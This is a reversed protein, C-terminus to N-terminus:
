LGVLGEADTMLSAPCDACAGPPDQVIGLSGAITRGFCFVTFDSVCCDEPSSYTDLLLDLKNCKMAISGKLTNMDEELTTIRAEDNTINGVATAVSQKLLFIKNHQRVLKNRIQQNTLYGSRTKLGDM